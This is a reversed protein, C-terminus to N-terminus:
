INIGNRKAIDEIKELSEKLGSGTSDRYLKIANIKQNAKLENMIKIELDGPIINTQTHFNEQQRKDIHSQFEKIGSQNQYEEFSNKSRRKFLIRLLRPFIFILLFTTLLYILFATYYTKETIDAKNGSTDTCIYQYEHSKIQVSFDGDCVIPSAIKLMGPFSNMLIYIFVSLILLLISISIVKYKTTKM